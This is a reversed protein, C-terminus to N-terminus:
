FILHESMDTNQTLPVRLTLLSIFHRAYRACEFLTRVSRSSHSGAPIFAAGINVIVGGFTETRTKNLWHSFTGTDIGMAAPPCTRSMHRLFPSSHWLSINKADASQVTFSYVDRSANLLTPLALCGLIESAHVHADCVKSHFRM